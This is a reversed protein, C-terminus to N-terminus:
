FKFILHLNNNTKRYKQTCMITLKEHKTTKKSMLYNFYSMKFRNIIGVSKSERNISDGYDYKSPLPIPM